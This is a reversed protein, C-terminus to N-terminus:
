STGSTPRRRRESVAPDRDVPREASGDVGDLEDVEVAQDAALVPPTSLARLTAAASAVEDATVVGGLLAGRLTQHFVRSAHQAMSLGDETLAANIVRRDDTSGRRDILGDRAMRDALKTFGGSTMAVGRALASMPMRHDDAILLLHLVAFWQAPVGSDELVQDLHRQVGRVGSRVGEWHARLDEDSMDWGAVTSLTARAAVGPSAFM